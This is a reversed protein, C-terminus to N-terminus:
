RLKKIKLQKWVLQTHNHDEDSIDELKIRSYFIKKPPLKTENFRTWLDLYEKPFVQKRLLLDVDKKFYQSTIKFRDKRQNDALKELSSNM